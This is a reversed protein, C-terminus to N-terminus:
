EYAYRKGDETFLYDNAELVDNINEDSTEFTYAKELERYLWKMLARTEEILATEDDASLFNETEFVTCFEHSYHGRHEVSANGAPNRQKIGDFFDAFRQLREDTPAHARLADADVTPAYFDGAFCAGDGQSWFGSWYIAPETYEKGKSTKRTTQKVEWGCAKAVILFDEIVPETFFNDGASAERWWERAKEKAKDSLESFEYVTTQKVAPM